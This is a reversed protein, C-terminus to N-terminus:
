AAVSASAKRSEWGDFLPSGFQPPMDATEIIDKIAVPIGDIASAPKGEKWRATSRDAAARAGEINTAVFASIQPEWFDFAELARDLFQRPTDEGSRFREVASLFPRVAAKM